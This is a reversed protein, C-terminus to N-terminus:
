EDDSIKVTDCFQMIGYLAPILLDRAVAQLTEPPEEAEVKTWVANLAALRIKVDEEIKDWDPEYYTM